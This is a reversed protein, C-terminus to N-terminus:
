YKDLLNRLSRGTPFSTYHGADYGELISNRGRRGSSSIISPKETVQSIQSIAMEIADLLDDHPSDPYFLYEEIFERMHEDVFVKGNEFFTSIGIIRTYKDKINKIPKIRLLKESLLQEKLATQYGNEE